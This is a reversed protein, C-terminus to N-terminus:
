QQAVMSLLINCGVLMDYGVDLPLLSAFFFVHCNYQMWCLFVQYLLGLSVSMFPSSSLLVIIILFNLVGSVGIPLNHFCFILLSVCAKFSMNSGTSMISISLVNWRLASYVKEELACLVNDLISWM